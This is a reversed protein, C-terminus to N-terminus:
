KTAPRSIRIFRIEDLYIDGDGELQIIFQKVKGPDAENKEFPFDTLPITVTTWASDTFIGDALGSTYGYYTQVGTYDEFAFAVPLNKFSGKASRVKMSVAADRLIPNIDKPQWNNWGFGIGIWKCEGSVKDWKVHMSTIGGAAYDNSKKLTLCQKEPSAWITNDFSESFITVERFDNIAEVEPNASKMDYLNRQQARLLPKESTSCSNVLLLVLILIYYERKM